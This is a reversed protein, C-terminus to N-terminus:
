RPTAELTANQRNQIVWEKVIPIMKKERELAATNGTKQYVEALLEHADPDYPETYVADLAYQEAKKPDKLDDMYLRALRKGFRNDKLAVGHLMALHEVAKEPLNVDQSLYLGALRQRPLQEMPQLRAAEEWVKAADAYQRAQMLQEGKKELEAHKKATDADYGWPAVQTQAWAFFEKSFDASNVKLVDLLVQNQPKGTKFDAMMRLIADRGWKEEIYRCIMWSQAYALTRDQPKRPRVFAWTLADMDFLQNKTVAKYLMPAWESRMPSHEEMVALGETMWHAIRNETATLTVIHTYEHRLVQTWNFPGLTNRGRRPAVLAIVRGTCAGVTGIWPSGTTRVSFAEHTPFVEILTKDPPEFKFDACVAGYISELYDTFYEAIVPDQRADYFVVFHESERRAMKALKDLLILYNTTRFNYPDLAYAAELVVKAKEENGSQTLLLGLGNRPATWWPAREIAVEYMKEARPYQRMAGLVDAVDHYASANHPDLKEVAALMELAKDEKLELAYAAALLGMAEISKPQKALVRRGPLEAQVPQREQLLLRAEVLDVAASTADVQRMMAIQREAGDFDFSELAILALLEHCRADNPNAALALKIEATAEKPDNHFLFCEAAAVHAPWYARDIVDYAKVFVRLVLKNLGPNNAYAGTLAAHRDFARGMLTVQEADEFERAGQGQWQDYYTKHVWEYAQRATTLDGTRESIAGLYYHGALSQPEKELLAKLGAIAEDLRGMEALVRTKMVQVSPRQPVAAESLAALAEERRGVAAMAEAKVLAIQAADGKTVKQLTILATKYRGAFVQAKAKDLDSYYAPYRLEPLKEPLYQEIWKQPIAERVMDQGSAISWLCLVGVAVWAKTM